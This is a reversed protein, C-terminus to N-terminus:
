PRFVAGDRTDWTVPLSANQALLTAWRATMDDLHRLAGWSGWRSAQQVDVFATFLTGGAAQWEAMLQGYLEGMGASHNVAIIFDNVAADENLPPHAVAHTGGEYAVLRLGYRAAADAHYPLTDGVLEAFSGEAIWDLAVEVGDERAMLDRLEGETGADGLEYGFYAAIAYADFAEAPPAIGEAQALPAELYAAELGKWGAQLGAVRVLRAEAEDGFVEAWIGMVEAARMGAFQMWAGNEETGWRARAQEMAWQSQGFVFNWVENSYEVHAMLAPDLGDRVMGAFGRVYDDSAMHPMNFWPDAGIRNSLDLMVEVPVGRWAWTFDEPLPRAAWDGQTSHNTRMWDMFRVLRFGEVLRIWDPNFVEGAEHLPILDERMIRIDRVPDESDTSKIAVSVSGPGPRYDFSVGTPRDDVRAVIGGVDVNGRGEWTVRYRGILSRAGVPMESLVFTEVRDAGEPMARLWGREDLYGGEVLAEFPWVGWEAATSGVWPRATKMLDIFPVQTEWDAIGALGIGLAPMEPGGARLAVPEVGEPWVAGTVGTWIAAAVRDYNERVLPDVTEPLDIRPPVERWVAAHVVMAALLYKTATGHPSMDSYVAEPDIGALVPGALVEALVSAVPILRVDVGPLAAQVAAVYDLHWRHYDGTQFALYAAMGEASPPYPTIDEMNSWGEYIWHVAGPAQGATWGFVEATLDVVSPTMWGMRETPPDYHIFNAANFIIADFGGDAFADGEELVPRVAAFEWEAEPPLAEVFEQPFGWTGDARFDHGGAEALLAMWHPVTTEDSETLHHILSNGFFFAHVREEAMAPGAVALGLGMAGCLRMVDIVSGM